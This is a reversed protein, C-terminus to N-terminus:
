PKSMGVFSGDNDRALAWLFAGVDPSEYFFGIANIRVRPQNRRPANWSTRLAERIYRSLIENRDLETLPRSPNEPLGEGINPLGDSLLYITDLGWARLRFAAELAAGMNTGGDPKIRALAELVRDPTTKPDYDLWDGEKGLLFSIKEAFVIVQFKELAPMSRMLRAVTERVEVWKNPAPTKEDVQEMSGSMDVLFVVRRGTLAIGAFRQDNAARLRGTEAQLTAVSRGSEQLQRELAAIREESEAWKQRYTRAQALERELDSRVARSGELKRGAESLEQGRRAVERELVHALAAEARAKKRETELDARLAPIRDAEAQLERIRAQAQELQLSLDSARALAAEQKKDRDRLGEELAAVRGSSTKVEGELEAVRARAAQTDGQLNAISTLAQQYRGQLQALASRQAALDRRLRTRESQLQDVQAALAMLQRNAEDRQATTSELLATTKRHEASATDEYDKAARLNLLWLLIVCGLACCLVDVMSLNFISPVRHRVQM